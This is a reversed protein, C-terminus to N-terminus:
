RAPLSGFIITSVNYALFLLYFLLTPYDPLLKKFTASITKPKKYDPLLTSLFLLIFAVIALPLLRFASAGLILSFLIFEKTNNKYISILLLIMAFVSLPGTTALNWAFANSFFTFGFALWIVSAAATRANFGFLDFLNELLALIIFIVVFLQAFFYSFLGPRPILGSISAQVGSNFFHYISWEYPVFESVRLRSFYNATLMESSLNSFYSYHINYLLTNNDLFVRTPYNLIFLTLGVAALFAYLSPDIKASDSKRINRIALILGITIVTVAVPRIIGANFNALTGVLLGSFSLGVM